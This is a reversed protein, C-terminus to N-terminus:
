HQILCHKGIFTQMDMYKVGKVEKYHPTSYDFLMTMSSNPFGDPTEIDEYNYIINEFRRCPETTSHGIGLITAIIKGAAAKLEKQTSCLPLSSSSNWYPPKCGLNQLLSQQEKIDYDVTGELCPAHRTSIKHVVDVSQIHFAMVYTQSATSKRVPWRKKALNMQMLLQSQYHPILWLQNEHVFDEGPNDVRKGGTFIEPKFHLHFGYVQQDKMFPFDITFCKMGIFTEEKFGPKLRENGDEGVGAEYINHGQWDKGKYGYAVVYDGLNRTVDDYDIKLLNEDWQWGLLFLPYDASGIGYKKLAEEKLANTFCVGISPYADIKEENFKKYEVVTGQPGNCYQNM